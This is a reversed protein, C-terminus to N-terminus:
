ASAYRDPAAAFKRACDLSCFRYEIGGHVLTGAAHAPDVAM